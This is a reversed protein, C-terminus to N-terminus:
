AMWFPRRSEHRAEVSTLGIDRLEHASMEGLRRRQDARAQWAYLVQMFGPLGGRPLLGSPSHLGRTNTYVSM